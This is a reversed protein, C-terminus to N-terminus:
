GLYTIGNPPTWRPHTMARVAKRCKRCLRISPLTRAARRLRRAAPNGKPHRPGYTRLVGWQGRGTRAAFGGDFVVPGTPSDTVFRGCLAASRTWPGPNEHGPPMAHDGNCHLLPATPM